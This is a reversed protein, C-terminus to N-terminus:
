KIKCKDLVEKLKKNRWTVSYPGYLMTQLCNDSLKQWRERDNILKFLMTTSGEVFGKRSFYYGNMDNVIIEKISKTHKTKMAIVPTGFSMSEIISFGFTDVPSPYFFVDALKYYKNLEEKPMLDKFTINGYKRRITKTTTSVVIADITIKPNITKMEEVFSDLIECAMEGNKLKFDRAVYLIMFSNPDFTRKSTQMLPVAPRMLTTKSQLEPFENIFEDYAYHTWPLIAKCNDRSLNALIKKKVSPSLKGISLQWVGEIDLIYDIGNSKKPNPICHAFHHIDKPSLIKSRSYLPKSLSLSNFGKRISSKLIRFVGRKVTNGILGSKTTSIYEYEEPPYNILSTYYSSDSVSLPFHLEVKKKTM